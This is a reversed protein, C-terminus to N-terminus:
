APSGFAHHVARELTAAAAEVEAVIRLQTRARDLNHGPRHIRFYSDGDIHDSLFRLGLTLAMTRAMEPLLAIEAPTLQGRMVAGYGQTVAEFFPLQFQVRSLDTEDEDAQVCVSRVLDGFDFLISGPMVTDLDVICVAAETQEDFLVNNIKMDNHAIRRPILGRSIEDVIRGAEARRALVFDVEAQVASARRLPDAKLACDFAEYRRPTHHFYPITEVLSSPDLDSLDRQFVALARGAERAVAASPCRQYTVTGEIYEYTRWYDGHSDRYTFAGVAATDARTRVLRLSCRQRDDRKTRLHETVQEVNRMLGEVDRFVQHNIWQHVYRRETSQALPQHHPVAFVSIFTENIHGSKLPSLSKLIGPIDFKSVIDRVRESREDM